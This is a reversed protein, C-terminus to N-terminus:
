QSLSYRLDDLWCTLRMVDQQKSCKNYIRESFGSGLCVALARDVNSRFGIM